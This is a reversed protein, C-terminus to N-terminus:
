ALLREPNAEIKGVADRTARTTLTEEEQPEMLGKQLYGALRRSQFLYRHGVTSSFLHLHQMPSRWAYQVQAMHDNHDLQYWSGLPLERVWEMMIISDTGGAGAIVDLESADVGLLDEIDQADMELDEIDDDSIYDELHALHGALTQIQEDSISETKSMFADALTDSIVKIHLEQTQEDVGMLTMGDRLTQLLEPLTAIVRARDARNPKSSAAWILRSAVQKLRLTEEHQVVM